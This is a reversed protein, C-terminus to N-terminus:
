GPPSRRSAGSMVKASSSSAFHHRSNLVAAGPYRFRAGQAVASGPAARGGETHGALHRKQPSIPRAIRRPVLRRKAQGEAEAQSARPIPDRPRRNARHVVEHQAGGM